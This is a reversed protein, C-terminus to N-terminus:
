PRATPSSVIGAELDATGGLGERDGLLAYTSPDFILAQTGQSGHYAVAVGPRGTIDREPHQDIGPIRAMALLIGARLDTPLPATRLLEIAIVFTQDDVGNGCRCAM